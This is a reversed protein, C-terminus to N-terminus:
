LVITDDARYPRRNSDLRAPNDYAPHEAHQKPVYEFGKEVTMALSGEDHHNRVFTPSSRPIEDAVSDIGAFVSDDEDHAARFVMQPPSNNSLSDAEEDTSQEDGHHKLDLDGGFSGDAFEAYIEESVQERKRTAVFFAIAIILLAAGVCLLSIALPQSFPAQDTKESSNVNGGTADYGYNVGDDVQGHMYRVGKLGEVSFEGGQGDLFPSPSDLNFATLIAKLAKSSSQLKSTLVSDERLYLTMFSRITYCKSNEPTAANSASFFKCTKSTVIDTPNSDVGDVLLHRHQSLYRHGLSEADEGDLRRTADCNILQRGVFRAMKSEMVKIIDNAYAGTDIAAEYEFQVRAPIRTKYVTERAFADCGPSPTDAENRPATLPDFGLKVETSDKIGDGDTDAKNPDTGHIHVEDYDSLGDNDSDILLPNTGYINVEEEDSLGDGDTDIDADSPNDDIIEPTSDPDLPDSDAKVEEGDTFGDGDTDRKLPDTGILVEQMDTLEDGDTDEQESDTGRADEEVDTMGDGDTDLISEDDNPAMTPAWTEGPLLNGDADCIIHFDAFQEFEEDDEGDNSMTNDAGGATDITDGASTDDFIIETEPAVDETEEQERRRIGSREEKVEVVTALDTSELDPDKAGPNAEKLPAPEKVVAAEKVAPEKVDKKAKPKLCKQLNTTPIERKKVLLYGLSLSSATDKHKKKLKTPVSMSMSSTLKKKTKVGEREEKTLMSMSSDLKTKTKPGEREEKTLMSMSYSYSEKKKRKKMHAERDEIELDGFMSEEKTKLHTPAKTKMSSPSKTTGELLDKDEKLPGILPSPAKTKMLTPSKTKDENPIPAGRFSGDASDKVPLLPAEKLVTEKLPAEIVVQVRRRIPKGDSKHLQGRLTRTNSTVATCALFTFGLLVIAAFAPSSSGVKM